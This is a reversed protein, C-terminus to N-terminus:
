RKFSSNMIRENMEITPNELEIPTFGTSLIENIGMQKQREFGEQITLKCYRKLDIDDDKNSQAVQGIFFPYNFNEMYWRIMYRPREESKEKFNNASEYQMCIVISTNDRNWKMTSLQPQKM